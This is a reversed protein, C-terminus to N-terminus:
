KQVGGKSTDGADGVARHLRAISLQHDFISRALNARARTLVALADLQELQISKGSEVRIAAVDYSAQAASLAAEATRYNQEATEIDLWAQRVEKAVQLEVRDSEARAKEVMAQAASVESRRRGGDFLPLSVTLGLTYGSRNGVMERPAFADGMAFGYVQPKFAGETASMEGQAARVRQRAAVLEGRRERARDLFSQLTAELPKFSLTEALVPSIDLGAGMEALLDLVQKRRDNEAMTLERRAEALEAEARKVAAEIGKGGELRAQATRVMEEAAALRALEAKVLEAALLSRIYAERVRLAVEATMGTAEAIAAQERAVAVAVLGSLWGSHLPVMLMLNADAFSGTPALVSAPPEVGMSSQLISPMSGQSLFGSATVQPRQRSRAAGTEARAASVEARSAKLIPSHRLAFEVAQEVTLQSPPAQQAVSPRSLAMALVCAIHALSRAPFIKHKEIQKSM